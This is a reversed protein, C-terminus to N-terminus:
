PRCGLCAAPLGLGMKDLPMNTLFVYSLAQLQSMSEASSHMLMAM